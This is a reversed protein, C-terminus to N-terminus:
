LSTTERPFEVTCLDVLFCRQPRPTFGGQLMQASVPRIVVKIKKRQQGGLIQNKSRWRPELGMGQPWLPSLPLALSMIRVTGLELSSDRRSTATLPRQSIEQDAALRWLAEELGCSGPESKVFIEWDLLLSAEGLVLELWLNHNGTPPPVALPQSPWSGEQGEWCGRSASQSLSLVRCWHHWQVPQPSVCPACFRGSPTHPEGQLKKPWVHCSRPRERSAFCWLDCVCIRPCFPFKDAM